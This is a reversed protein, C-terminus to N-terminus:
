VCQAIDYGGGSARPEGALGIGDRAGGPADQGEASLGSPYDGGRSEEETDGKGQGKGLVLLESGHLLLIVHSLCAALEQGGAGLLVSGLLNAGSKVALRALRSQLASGRPYQCVKILRGPTLVGLGAGRSGAPATM